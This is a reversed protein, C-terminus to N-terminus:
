SGWIIASTYGIHKTTHNRLQPRPPATTQTLTVDADRALGTRLITIVTNGHAAFFFWFCFHSIKVLRSPFQLSLFALLSTRDLSAKAAASAAATLRSWYSSRLGLLRRALLVAHNQCTIKACRYENVNGRISSFGWSDVGSRLPSASM